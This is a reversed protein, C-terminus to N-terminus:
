WAGPAQPAAAVVPSHGNLGTSPVRLGAVCALAFTFESNFVGGRLSSSLVQAPQLFDRGTRLKRAHCGPGM